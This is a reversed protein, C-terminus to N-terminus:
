HGHCQGAGFYGWLAGGQSATIFCTTLLGGITKNEHLSKCMLDANCLPVATKSM